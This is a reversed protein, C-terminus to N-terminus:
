KEWFIPNSMEHLNDGSSFIQMCQWFRNEPSFIMLSDDASNAWLPTFILTGKLITSMKCNKKKKKKKQSFM